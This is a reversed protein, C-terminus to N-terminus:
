DPRLHNLIRRAKAGSTRREQGTGLKEAAQLAPNMVCYSHVAQRGYGESFRYDRRSQNQLRDERVCELRM